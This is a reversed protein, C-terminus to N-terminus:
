ICSFMAKCEAKEQIDQVQECAGCQMAKMNPPTTQAKTEMMSSADIFVITSPPIFFSADVNWNQCSYDIDTNMNFQSSKATSTATTDITFKMAMDGGATKGWLYMETGDSIVNTEVLGALTTMSFHAKMKEGSVYVKGTVQASTEKQAYSVDCVINKQLRLLKKFTGSGRLDNVATPAFAGETITHQNTNESNLLKFLPEKVTVYLAVSGITLVAIIGIILKTM